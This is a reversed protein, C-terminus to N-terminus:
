VPYTPEFWVLPLGNFFILNFDEGTSVYFTVLNPSVASSAAKVFCSFGWSPEPRFLNFDLDQFTYEFRKNTYFPVEITQLPNIGANCVVVGNAAAERNLEYMASYVSPSDGDNAIPASLTDNRSQSKRFLQFDAGSTFDSQANGTSLESADVTWRISGRWGLFARSIYNLLTTECNIYYRGDPFSNIISNLPPQQVTDYFGGYNPFATRSVTVVSDATVEPLAYMESRFKRKLMQRFSGISEGFFVKTLIPMDLSTDAFSDIVPPDTVANEDSVDGFDAEPIPLVPQRFRLYTLNANPQAVEFDDLMSVFVAVQIPAVVTGPVTLSNLVYISITGNSTNNV